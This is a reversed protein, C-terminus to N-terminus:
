FFRALRSAADEAGTAAAPTTPKPLNFASEIAPKWRGLLFDETTLEVGRGYRHLYDVLSQEDAFNYRRVYVLPIGLAVAEVLTGYGPKTLILDVSAQLTKFSLPLSKTSIVRTSHSPIPGDFLFRYGTLPELQEFPLSAQPVGGFGILVTREGPALQLLAALHERASAAPEAIPGIDIFTTVLTMKPAPTIRLALDAKAYAQQISQLLTSGAIDPPAPFESLILDWTFSVLAVTPCAAQAGAAIALYPTDALIVDPRAARMARVEAQVRDDWTLHFRHHARWTADVDITLPGNQICGVDQQVASLEWPVTLRHEFFSAPVMTRLLVRLDPVLRGLANLVPVVQAAHGFGHASIAAWLLPM